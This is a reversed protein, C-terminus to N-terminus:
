DAKEPWRTGTPTMQVAAHAPGRPTTREKAALTPVDALMSGQRVNMAMDQKVCQIAQGGHFGASEHHMCQHMRRSAQQRAHHQQIPPGQLGPQAIGTAELGATRLICQISQLMMPCQRATPQGQHSPPQSGTGVCRGRRNAWRPKGVRPPRTGASTGASAPVAAVALRWAAAATGTTSVDM